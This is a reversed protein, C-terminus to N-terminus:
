HRHERSRRCPDEGAQGALEPVNAVDDSTITTTTASWHDCVAQRLLEPREFWAIPIRRLRSGDGDKKPAGPDGSNLQFSRHSLRVVGYQGDSEFVPDRANLLFHLATGIQTANRTNWMRLRGHGELSLLR